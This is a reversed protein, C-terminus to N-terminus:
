AWESLDFDFLIGGMMDNDLLVDSTPFAEPRTVNQKVQCLDRLKTVMEDYFSPLSRPPMASQGATNASEMKQAVRGFVHSPDLTASATWMGYRVGSIRSYIKITHGVMGWYGYPLSLVALDPLDCFTDILKEITSLCAVLLDARFTPDTFSPPFIADESAPKYLHLQLMKHSMQLLVAQVPDLPTFPLPRTVEEQLVSITIALSPTIEVSLADRYVWRDVKDVLQILRILQVLYADNASEQSAELIRCCDETYQTFRPTVMNHFCNNIISAMWFVGLYARREDLTRAPPTEDSILGRLAGAGIKSRPQSEENLRLETVMAMTLHIPTLSGHGLHQHFHSWAVYLLNAQLTGLSRKRHSLLQSIDNGIARALETQRYPDNQCTIMILCKLLLPKERQLQEPTTAPSLAVFPFMPAMEKVFMQVPNLDESMSLLPDCFEQGPDLLLPLEPIPTPQPQMSFPPTTSSSIETAVLRSMSHVMMELRQIEMEHNTRARKNKHAGPTQDHCEKGLRVCRKCNRSLPDFECRIKLKACPICAKMQRKRDLNSTMKRPIVKFHEGASQQTKYSNARM